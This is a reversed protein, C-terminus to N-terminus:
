SLSSGSPLFVKSISRPRNKEQRSACLVRSTSECQRPDAASRQRSRTALTQHLTKTPLWHAEAKKDRGGGRREQHLPHRNGDPSCLSLVGCLLSDLGAKTEKKKKERIEKEKEERTNGIGRPEMREGKYWPWPRSWSRFLASSLKYIGGLFLQKKTEGSDVKKKNKRGLKKGFVCFSLVFCHPNTDRHTHTCKTVKPDPATM